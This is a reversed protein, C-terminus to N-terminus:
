DLKRSARAITTASSLTGDEYWKMFDSLSYIAPNVGLEKLEKMWVRVALKRANTKLSPSKKTVSKVNTSTKMNKFNVIL